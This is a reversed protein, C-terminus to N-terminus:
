RVPLVRLFESPLPPDEGTQNQPACGLVVMSPADCRRCIPTLVATNATCAGIGPGGITVIVGASPTTPMAPGVRESM